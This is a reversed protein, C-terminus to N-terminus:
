VSSMLLSKSPRWQLQWRTREFVCSMLDSSLNHYCKLHRRRVFFVRYALMVFFSNFLFQVLSHKRELDTVTKKLELDFEERAKKLATSRQRKSEELLRM